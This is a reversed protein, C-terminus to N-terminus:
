LNTQEIEQCISYLHETTAHLCSYMSMISKLYPLLMSDVEQQSDLLIQASEIVHTGRVIELECSQSIESLKIFNETSLIM